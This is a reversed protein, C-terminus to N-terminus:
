LALLQLLVDFQLRAVSDDDRLGRSSMALGFSALLTERIPMMRQRLLTALAWDCRTPPGNAPRKSPALALSWWLRSRRPLAKPLQCSENTGGSASGSSM